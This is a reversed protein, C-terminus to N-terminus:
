RAAVTSTPLAATPLPSTAMALTAGARKATYMASDARRLLEDADDGHDPWLALGVNCGVNVSQGSILFPQKFSQVVRAAAAAVDSDDHPLFLVVFEDGGFRGVVDGLRVSRMLREAILCLLEDGADHGLGDNVAKFGTLDLFAVGVRGSARRARAVAANLERIVLRRNPVGTLPDHLAQRALQDHLSANELARSAMGALARLLRTEEARFREVARPKAVLWRSGNQTPIAAGIEFAIPPDPRIEADPCDLVQVVRACVAAEVEPVSMGAHTDGSADVIGQLLEVTRSRNAHARSLVFVLAIPVTSLVVAGAGSRGALGMFGGTALAVGSVFASWGFDVFFPEGPRRVGALEFVVSNML